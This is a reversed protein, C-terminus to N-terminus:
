LLESLYDKVVMELGEDLSIAPKWKLSKAALTNDLLSRRVEQHNSPVYEVKASTKMLRELKLILSNISTEVNSSINYFGNEELSIANFIAQCVDSVHVWDRTSNGDGFVSINESNIIKRAFIAPASKPPRESGYVNSFNLSTYKFFENKHAFEELMQHSELKHRGYPSEPVKRSFENTPLNSANGFIAGGSNAFIFKVKKSQVESCASLLNQTAKVNSEYDLSPNEISLRVDTQAALHIVIDPNFHKVAQICNEHALDLLVDEILIRSRAPRKDIGFVIYDRKVSQLVEVLNGGIFGAHGTLLVRQSM